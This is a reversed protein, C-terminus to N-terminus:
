KKVTPVGDVYEWEGSYHVAAKCGYIWDPDWRPMDVGREVELFIDTLNECDEFIGYDMAIVSKPIVVYKLNHCCLFAQVDIFEVSQPIEVGCIDKGYFTRFTIEKVGDPIKVYKDKGNYGDLEGNFIEFEEINSM